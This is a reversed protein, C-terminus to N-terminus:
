GVDGAYGTDNDRDADGNDGALNQGVCQVPVQSTGHSDRRVM